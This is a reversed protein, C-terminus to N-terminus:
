GQTRTSHRSLVLYRFRPNIDLPCRDSSHRIFISQGVGSMSQMTHLFLASPAGYRRTGSDHRRTSWLTFKRYANQQGRDRSQGCTKTAMETINVKAQRRKSKRRKPKDGKQGYESSVAVDLTSGVSQQYATVPASKIAGLRVEYLEVM